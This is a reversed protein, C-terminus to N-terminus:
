GQVALVLPFVEAAGARRLLRAAVALTWGTDAYDDVLLVPGGASELAQALEPPVGLSGDLARLGSPM